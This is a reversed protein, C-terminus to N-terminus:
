RPSFLGHHFALCSDIVALSAVWSVSQLDTVYNFWQSSADNQQTKKIKILHNGIHAPWHVLNPHFIKPINKWHPSFHSCHATLLRCHCRCNLMQLFWSQMLTSASCVRPFCSVMLAASSSCICYHIRFWPMETVISIQAKAAPSHVPQQVSSLENTSAHFIDSASDDRLLFYFIWLTTLTAHQRDM